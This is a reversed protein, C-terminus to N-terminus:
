VFLQWGSKDANEELEACSSFIHLWWNKFQHCCSDAPCNRRLDEFGAVDYFLVSVKQYRNKKSSSALNSSAVEDKGIMKPPKYPTM